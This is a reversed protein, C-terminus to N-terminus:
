EEGKGNITRSIWAISVGERKAIDRYSMGNEHLQKIRQRTQDDIRGPRGRKVPEYGEAQKATVAELDMGGFTARIRNIVAEKQRLQRRLREITRQDAEAKATWVAKEEEYKRRLEEYEAKRM